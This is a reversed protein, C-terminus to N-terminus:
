ILKMMTNLLTLCEKTNYREFVNPQIMHHILQKYSTSLLTDDLHIYPLLHLLVTGFSYIDVKTSNQTLLKQISGKSKGQLKQFLHTCSEKFQEYTYFQQFLDINRLKNETLIYHLLYWENDVFTDINEIKKSIYYYRSFYRYEPPHIVYDANLFAANVDLNYIDKKKLSIGFDIWRFEHKKELINSTKIDQHIYGHQHFLYLGEFLRKLKPLFDKLLIKHKRQIMYRILTQSAYPRKLLHLKQDKKVLPCKRSDETPTIECLEYPYIFYFQDPDLKYLVHANSWELVSDTPRIVKGIMSTNVKKIEEIKRHCLPSPHYICSYLGSYLFKSRKSLNRSEAM